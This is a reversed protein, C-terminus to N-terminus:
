VSRLSVQCQPASMHKGEPSRHLDTKMQKVVIECARELNTQTPQAELTHVSTSKYKCRQLVDSRMSAVSTVCTGTVSM